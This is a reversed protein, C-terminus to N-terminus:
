QKIKKIGLIHNKILVYDSSTIKEDGNVDAGHLKFNTLQILKLIHNKVLVYDSSTIKGDGNVDGKITIAFKVTEDDKELTIIQGTSLVTNMDIENGSVDTVSMTLTSNDKQKPSQFTEQLEKLSSGLTFGTVYGDKFTLNNDEIYPKFTDSLSESLEPEEPEVPKNEEVLRDYEQKVLSKFNAWGMTGKTGDLINHACNKGSWDKHMRVRDSPLNNEFLIRATLYAANREAQAYNGDANECIEIGITGINGMNLGDGAHYGVENMPMSQYIQKNDVTYHWSINTRSDNIQLNAHRYADAGYGENATNHITVYQPLQNLGTRKDERVPMMMQYIPINNVSNVSLTQISATFAGMSTSIFNDSDDYQPNVWGLYTSGDLSYLEVQDITRRKSLYKGPKITTGTKLANYFFPESFVTCERKLEYESFEFESVELAVYNSTKAIDGYGNTQYYTTTTGGPGGWTVYMSNANYVQKSNTNILKYTGTRSYGGYFERTRSPVSFDDFGDRGYYEDYEDYNAEPEKNTGANAFVPTMSISGLLLCFGCITLRLKKTKM